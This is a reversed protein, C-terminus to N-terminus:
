YHSLPNGWGEDQRTKEGFNLLMQGLRFERMQANSMRDDSMWGSGKKSGPSETLLGGPKASRTFEPAHFNPDSRGLTVSSLPGMQAHNTAAFRPPSNFGPGGIQEQMARMQLPSAGYDPGFSGAPGGPATIPTGAIRPDDFAMPTGSGLGEHPRPNHVIGPLRNPNMQSYLANIQPRLENTGQYPFPIQTGAYKPPLLNMQANAYPDQVFRPGGTDMQDKLSPGPTSLLADPYTQQFLATQQAATAPLGPISETEFRNPDGYNDRKRLISPRKYLADMAAMESGYYDVIRKERDTYERNRM